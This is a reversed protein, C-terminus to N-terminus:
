RSGFLGLYCILSLQEESCLIQYRQLLDSLSILDKILLQKRHPFTKRILRNILAHDKKHNQLNHQEKLQMQYTNWIHEDEGEPLDPFFNIFGWCPVKKAPVRESTTQESANRKGYISRKKLIEPINERNRFRYNKFHTRLKRHWLEVVDNFSLSPRLHPFRKM